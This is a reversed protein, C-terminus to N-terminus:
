ICPPGSRGTRTPDPPPARYLLRAAPRLALHVLLSDAAGLVAFLLQGGAALLGLAASCWLTAATNLGHVGGGDRLIVGGGLCGTGSVVYSAVRTPSNADAVAVSPLM